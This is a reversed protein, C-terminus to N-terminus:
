CADLLMFFELRPTLFADTWDWFFFFGFFWVSINWHRRNLSNWEQLKVWIPFFISIWVWESEVCHVCFNFDIGYVFNNCWNFFTVFQFSHLSFYRYVFDGVLNQIWCWTHVFDGYSKINLGLIFSVLQSKAVFDIVWLLESNCLQGCSM